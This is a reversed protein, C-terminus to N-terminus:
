RKIASLADFLTTSFKMEIEFDETTSQVGFKSESKRGYQNDSGTNGQRGVDPLTRAGTLQLSSSLDRPMAILWAAADAPENEIPLPTGGTGSIYLKSGFEASTEDIGIM